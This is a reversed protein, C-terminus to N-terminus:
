NNQCNQEPGQRGRDRDEHRKKEGAEDAEDPNRSDIGLDDNFDKIAAHVLEGKDDDEEEDEAAVDHGGATDDLFQDLGGIGYRPKEGTTQSNGPNDGATEETGNGAGGHSGHHGDATEHDRGEYFVMVILAEADADHCRSGDKPDDNRRGDGHNKVGHDGVVRQLSQEQGAEDGAYHNNDPEGKVGVKEAAFLDKSVKFRGGNRSTSLTKRSLM